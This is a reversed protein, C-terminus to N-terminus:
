KRALQLEYVEQLRPPPRRRFLSYNYIKEDRKAGPRTLPEHFETELNAITGVPFM